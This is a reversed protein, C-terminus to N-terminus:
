LPFRFSLGSIMGSSDTSVLIDYWSHAFAGDRLDYHNINMQWCFIMGFVFRYTLPYLQLNQAGGTAHALSFLASSITAGFFKSSTVSSFAPFLFGRFLGEEGLGVFSYTFVATPSQLAPYGNQYGGIAAYAVVPAGIPDILSLPNYFAIYNSLFTQNAYRHDDPAADRYADYMNYFWLDWGIQSLMPSPMLYLGISSTAWAIGELTHGETVQGLGPVISLVGAVGAAPGAECRTPTALVSIMLILGLFAAKCRDGLASETWLTSGLLM